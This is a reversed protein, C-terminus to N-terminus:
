PEVGLLALDSDKASQVLADRYVDFISKSILGRVLGYKANIEVVEVTRDAYVKAVGEIDVPDSKDGTPLSLWVKAWFTVLPEDEARSVHPSRDIFSIVARMPLTRAFVRM